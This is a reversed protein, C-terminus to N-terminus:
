LGSFDLISKIAKDMDYYKYTGLRWLFFVNKLESAEKQYKELVQMNGKTEVPYAEIDWKGPIEKCIVTKSLPYTSSHPYFKKFETIRTYDYDNPYNIVINGQYSQINYSELQYLTKKYELRGYKYNFFVDISWTFYLKEYSIQNRIKQYDTKLSVHILESGLMKEFMKTYGFEPMWQYKNTPFYRDDRSIVIPVRKLVNPDMEEIPIQWQKATYNKFVKEFIYDSIFSLVDNHELKAKDRLEQISVKSGYKFYTLLTKEIESAKEPWFVGYIANINFPIPVLNADIYWLVKYQFDTFRTFRNVYEWVDDFDTHFIHPWYKHILIGNDDYYDYCNWGVHNRKDVIVVEEWKEALRQALTIGALGAGVILNKVKMNM